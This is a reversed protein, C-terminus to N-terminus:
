RGWEDDRLLTPLVLRKRVFCARGLLSEEVLEDLAARGREDAAAVPDYWSMYWRNIRRLPLLDFVITRALLGLPPRLVTGAPALLVLKRLREPHALAFTAAKWGGYSHALLDVKSLQLGAILKDLWQTFDASSTPRRRHVSRGYDYIPDLARIAGRRDRPTMM